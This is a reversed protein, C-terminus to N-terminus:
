YKELDDEEGSEIEKIREVLVYISLGILSLPIICGIIKILIPMNILFCLFVFFFLYMVLIITIVIPAILKKTKM